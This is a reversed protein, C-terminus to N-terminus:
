FLRQLKKYDGFNGKVFELKDAVFNSKHRNIMFISFFHLVSSSVKKTCTLYFKCIYTIKTVARLTVGIMVYM